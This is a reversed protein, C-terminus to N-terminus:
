CSGERLVNGSLLLRNLWNERLQEAEWPPHARRQCNARSKRVMFPFCTSSSKLWLSPLSRVAVVDSRSGPRMMRTWSSTKKWTPSPRGPFPPSFTDSRVSFSRRVAGPRLDFTLLTSVMHSVSAVTFTLTPGTHHPRVGGLSAPGSRLSPGGKHM